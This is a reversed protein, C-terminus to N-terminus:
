NGSRLSISDAIPDYSVELGVDRIQSFSVHEVNPLAMTNRMVINEEKVLKLFAAKSVLINGGEAIKIELRRGLKGNVILPMEIELVGKSDGARNLDYDLPMFRRNTPVDSPSADYAPEKPDDRQSGEVINAYTDSVELPEPNSVTEAASEKVFKRPEPLLFRIPYVPQQKHNKPVLSGGSQLTIGLLLAILSVSILITLKKSRSVIM